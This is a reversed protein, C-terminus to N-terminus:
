GADGAHGLRPELDIREQAGPGPAIREGIDALPQALAPVGIGAELVEHVPEVANDDRPDDDQGSPVDPRVHLVAPSLLISRAAMGMARGTSSTTSAAPM